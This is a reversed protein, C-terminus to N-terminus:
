NCEEYDGEALAELADIRRKSMRICADRAAAGVLLRDTETWSYPVGRPRMAVTVVQRREVVRVDLIEPDYATAAKEYEGAWIRRQEGPISEDDRIKAAARLFRPGIARHALRLVNSQFENCARGDTMWLIRVRAADAFYPLGDSARRFPVYVQMRFAAECTPLPELTLWATQQDARSQPDYAWSSQASWSYCRPDYGSESLASRALDRAEAIMVGPDPALPEPTMPAGDHPSQQEVERACAGGAAWLCLAALCFSAIASRVTGRRGDDM